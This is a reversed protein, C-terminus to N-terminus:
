GADREFSEHGKALHTLQTAGRTRLATCSKVVQEYGTRLM